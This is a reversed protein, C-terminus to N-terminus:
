RTPDYEPTFICTFGDLMMRTSGSGEDKTVYASHNGGDPMTLLYGGDALPQIQLAQAEGNCTVLVATPGAHTVMTSYKVNRYILDVPTSKAIHNSNPVQGRALMSVFSKSMENFVSFGELASGCLAV